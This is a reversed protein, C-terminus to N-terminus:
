APPLMSAGRRRAVLFTTDDSAPLDGRYARLAAVLHSQTDRAGAQPDRALWDSLIEALQVMGLAERDENMLETLGDTYLLLTEGVGLTTTRAVIRTDMMGLPPNDGHHLFDVTGGPQVIMAPLHGASAYELTGSTLDLAACVMTVFSHAPLFNCLHLNIRELLEQISTTYGAIVHIATHVASAVMAAQMGKGCVDAVALLVRGDQLVVADVYDGGVWRCPEFGVAIDVGRLLGDFQLARPILGEQIERAMELEREVRASERVHTRMEWVLESQQHAEATLAVLSLWENTAHTPPFAVFLADVREEDLVLPCAMFTAGNIADMVPGRTELLEQIFRAPIELDDPEGSATAGRLVEVRLGDLIRLVTASRASCPATVLCDCMRQMRARTGSTKALIRGLKMVTALHEGGIVPRAAGSSDGLAHGSASDPLVFRYEASSRERVRLRFPGIRLDEGADLLRDVVPTGGVYLGGSGSLDRARFRGFSSRVLEVHQPAVSSDDLVIHARDSSGVITREAYLPYVTPTSADDHWVELQDRVRRSSDPSEM